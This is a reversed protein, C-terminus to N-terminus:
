AKTRLSYWIKEIINPKVNCKGEMYEARWPNREHKLLMHYNSLAWRSMAEEDDPHPDPLVHVGSVPDYTSVERIGDYSGHRHLLLRMRVSMLESALAM